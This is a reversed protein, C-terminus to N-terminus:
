DSEVVRYISVDENSFVKDFNDSLAGDFRDIGEDTYYQRELQGVYVYQVNYKRILELAQEPTGTSYIREVEGIRKSVSQRYDWRQQEQHWQWGVVTPLGTYISIRGGWRYTPTVGELIIPSGSVNARLWEIGEFDTAIDIPGEADRYVTDDIYATGDLTLPTVRGEFRDRLRAQTGFIPFISASVILIAVAGIWAQKRYPLRWIAIRKRHAMRWLLYASALALMVWVQLYFKFISNMRDIDGEVRFIDLGITLSLSVLVLMAVFLLQPADPRSGALWKVTAVLVFLVMLLVFPITSGAAGTVAATLGFGVVMAVAVASLLMTISVPPRSEDVNDDSISSTLWEAKDIVYEAILYLWRRSEYVFFSGIIFVFLGSIALWQWLVTTNTTSDVSSFFTEYSLHFPLFAVYGVAFVFISKITARVAMLLSIGGHSLFEAIFVAAFGVILYTPFDWTNIVRLSGVTVGLVAMRAIQSPNERFSLFADILFAGLLAGTKQRITYALRIQSALKEVYNISTTGKAGLVVALAVGIALLTFPLAMMHAHLDAFLFTFFPFETIEFGPPDPAMMRSSRWFDFEGFSANGVTARWFGQAMQIVGDLNGLVTVFTAGAIGALVPSWNLKNSTPRTPINSVEHGWGSRGECISPTSERGGHPRALSLALRKRTSEALNYVVSFAGGVTLSFFLPVALNFAIDSSIGTARILFGTLFQGWYYYNIFGGGFWPDYPPFFTSRTVANLYALDMPKEGGRFPHWLDPNAMRIMLFAFFAALFVIEGILMLSWRRKVYDVIEIRRRAVIAISAIGIVLISVTIAGRSFAMWHVSALLWVILGALLLGLSKAFLYGRDPLPRFVVFAIPLTLLAIGEVVILWLLIPMDSFLGDDKVIDSWTGGQQQALADEPSLLLGVGEGQDNDEAKPTDTAPSAVVNEQIRQRLTGADLRDENKFILVKPHDYVSFSEDAFGLNLSVPSPSFDVLADPKPVNPREFTNDVFGVGFLEPYTAEVNAFEYGLGGTFLLNYYAITTPYREPLRPITGYLRNSFFVIYDADAIQNTMQELKQPTDDNYLQLEDHDYGHLNPLGEEWHEKLILSGKPVNAVIWNSARVATHTETYLGTYSFAYFATSGIVFVAVVIMATRLKLNIAGVRNWVATMMQAGFIILFPSMPILYRMFKVQFAGTILFLPVVWSLILVGMRTDPSRIPLTALLAALALGSAVFIAFFSNSVFVLIAAPILWGAVIYALGFVRPMGRLAVYVLGAWAVIGLPIGLGWVSLQRIHYLYPTTDVYQRTYPYDRIRRVMESQETVDGFFRDWDLFAYPQTIFVVAISAGIGIIAYQVTTTLRENFTKGDSETEGNMALLYMLHAMVFAGYIPAQSVKTALGLGVFAGALVSDRLRGQKAVRYMFFIAVITFLAQLTDVAFFHSLQIHIVAVATLLSALLATRRDFIRLALLYVMGVTVVDALASITRGIPRLDQLQDGSVASYALQVGKMTYLPFSGYPFWRPNWPSEDANFLVGLDGLPPPSLDNVNFLIAREDPHPTYDFGRDWDLGFFRLGLALALIAVIPGVRLADAKIIALVRRGNNNATINQPIDM